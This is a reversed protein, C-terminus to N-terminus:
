AQLQGGELELQVGAAGCKSQALRWLGCATQVWDGPKMLLMAEQNQRLQSAAVVKSGGSKWSQSSFDMRGHLEQSVVVLYWDPTEADRLKRKFLLRNGGFLFDLESAVFTQGIAGHPHHPNFDGAGNFRVLGSVIWHRRVKRGCRIGSSNYYAAHRSYRHPDAEDQAFRAWWNCGFDLVTVLM